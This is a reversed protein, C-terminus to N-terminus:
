AKLYIGITHISNVCDITEIGNRKFVPSPFDDHNETALFLQGGKQYALLASGILLDPLGIKKSVGSRKYEQGLQVAYDFHKTEFKVLSDASKQRTLTSILNEVTERESATTTYALLEARVVDHILPQVSYKFLTDIFPEYFVRYRGFSIVVSTDLLLYKGRLPEYNM